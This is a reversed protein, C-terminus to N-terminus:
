VGPEDVESPGRRPQDPGASPPEIGRSRCLAEFESLARQGCTDEICLGCGCVRWVLQGGRPIVEWTPLDTM